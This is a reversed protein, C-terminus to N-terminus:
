QGWNNHSLANAFTPMGYHAYRTGVAGPLPTIDQLLNLPEGVTYHATINARGTVTRFNLGSANFTIARAGGGIAEASYSALGGGLSHGVFIINDRGYKAVQQQAYAAAAEYQQTRFGFANAINTKWDSWNQTGRSVVAYKGNSLRYTDGIYGTETPSHENYQRDVLERCEQTIPDEANTGSLANIGAEALSQTAGAVAGNAFKGGGVVEVTGGVIAASLPDSGPGLMAETTSQLFGTKFSGGKALSVLGGKVGNLMYKIYNACELAQIYVGALATAGAELASQFGAKLADSFSGGNLLTGTFSGAFAGAITGIAGAVWAAMYPALAGATLVTVIVAIVIVVIVKWYKKFFKGISSFFGYGSPDVYRLPNNNTYTYRNYNQMDGPFQLTPDASLFRGLHPDYIRGNMHVLGLGDLQEHGTFGRDTQLGTIQESNLTIPQWTTADRRAGWADFSYEALIPATDGVQAGTVAVISGLHDMHFYKRTISNGTGSQSNPTEIHIGVTGAPTNIFVRTEKHAWTWNAPANTPNTVEEDQEMGAIYLKKKVTKALGDDSEIIQTIRSNNIDYAFTSGNQGSYISLPKNFSTWITTLTNSGSVQRGLMNGNDDYTYSLTNTGDAVSTVAHPGASQGNTYDGVGTKSLINGTADYAVTSVTSNTSSTVTSQTLRNLGDYVFDEKLLIQRLNRRSKLNGLRDLSYLDNQIDSAESSANRCTIATLSGTDPDYTRSTVTDNGLTFQLLHGKADYDRDDIKWWTHGTSDSVKTVVGYNNFTNVTTFVNWLPSLSDGSAIVSQPRWFRDTFKVRSYQDYRVCNYYWKNDINSLELMPRGYSDYAYTKRYTLEGQANRLEERRLSGLWCGADTGDYYWRAEGEPTTRKIMRGLTDYEMTTTQNKADTQSVLEGLANYTYSWTGMDPDIQQIKNGRIDYVMQVTNSAADTIQILNGAADYEYTLTNGLNDIVELTQGQANQVTTKTQNKPADDGSGSRHDSDAIVQMTLGNYIYETVTGDPTTLYQKRGLADYESTGFKHTEGLFYNESVAVPQGLGNYVTDQCVKKKGSPSLTMQRIERGQNDYWATAPASGSSQKTIKYSSTQSLLSGPHAPDPGTITVSNDWVYETTTETGDARTERVARGLPDYEMSTTLGNPGTKATVLGTKQDYQYTESHGLINRSTSVFRGGAAYDSQQVSRAAIGPASVIKNTINGYGDYQYDTTLELTANGPEVIEDALLGTTDDYHYASTKTITNTGLEHTITATALRGLLWTNTDVAYYANSSIQKADNGYDMVIKTINGYVINQPTGNTPQILNPTDSATDQNDFWNYSTVETMPNNTDTEGLEWKKEVSKAVYPFLTGNQVTDYLWTNRVEKLLQVNTPNNVPDPSYYTESSIQSGTWPFAQELIEVQSLQTQRDYSEFVRFGLFGRDRHSRAEAYTYDSWYEGGAGNDKGLASVVYMPAQVDYVPYEAGTGKVYINTDTIPLYQIETVSGHESASRYGKTIKALLGNRGTKNVFAGSQAGNNYVLDVLGDGTVDEFRAGLDKGNSDVLSVSPTYEDARRWGSGANLYAGNTTSSSYVIDIRQDGNVDLFRVGLDGKADDKLICPPEFNVVSNTTWGAGTNLYAGKEITGNSLKRKYLMDPLGDGNVDVFQALDKQSDDYIPYPPEYSVTSNTAWGTGTNLYAGKDGNTRRYIMDTLGDGNLDLFQVGRPTSAYVIDYPPTYAPANSWGSGTNLYAGQQNYYGRRYVMDPLGDANLDVFRAGMDDSSDAVIHFPPIYNSSWVWGSGTNLYAGTQPGSSLWRHYIMDVLGDGNVDLFRAGMDNGGNDVIHFLPAFNASPVWGVATSLYAGKQQVSTSVWRHYVIDTRGDGNLDIFRVGQDQGNSDTINFPPVVSSSAEYRSNDPYDTWNFVTKPLSDDGFIQQVSTLTSLGVENYDYVFHYESVTEGDGNVIIKQLRKTAYFKSGAIYGSQADDRDEYVFDIENCPSLSQADNATYVINTLLQPEGANESYHFAIYNGVTDSIKSVAWTLANTRGEPEAFSDATHGYEYILGSKTHVEFWSNSSNMAGHLTIKAFSDIETRYQTGDAGYVGNTPVIMLRQGDLALRDLDDFDVGDVVGDYLRTAPARSVASLGSLSFRVGMIGNGGQSSYQVSLTPQMGATGPPLSIPISYSAAGTNDVNVDGPLEGVLTEASASSLAALLLFNLILFKFSKKKM